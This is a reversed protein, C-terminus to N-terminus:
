VELYTLDAFVDVDEGQYGCPNCVVRTSGITYDFQNHTHGHVWLKINPHAMILEDLRNAFHFNKEYPILEAYRQHISKHSPAFHSIVVTNDVGRALENTLSELAVAYRDAYDQPNPTRAPSQPGVSMSSWRFDGMGACATTSLPNNDYNSWLTTGYITYGNIEVKSNDLLYINSGYTRLLEKHKFFTSKGYPAKVGFYEHNGPVYVVALFRESLAKWLDSFFEMHEFECIDGALLLVSEADNPLVPFYVGAWTVSALRTAHRSQEMHTDSFLRFLM